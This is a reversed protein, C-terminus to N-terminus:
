KRIRLSIELFAGVVLAWVIIDTVLWLWEVNWPYYEPSLIRRILWAFPYGYWEGGLLTGNSVLGTLLAIVFGGVLSSIVVRITNL